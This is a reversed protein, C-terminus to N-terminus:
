LQTEGSEDIMSPTNTMKSYVVACEVALVLVCLGAAITFLPGIGIAAVISPSVWVGVGALIFMLFNVLASAAAAKEQKVGSVYAMLAPFFSSCGFGLVFSFVLPIALNTKYQFSWGFILAAIPTIWAIFCSYFLRGVTPKFKLAAHDSLRGTIVCGVLMGFGTPIFCVGTLAENLNYPPQALVIPLQVMSIFMTMFLIPLVLVHSLLKTDGLFLIPDYFPLMKPKRLDKAEIINRGEAITKKRTLVFYPHTEPILFFTSVLFIGGLILLAVFTSRWGLSQSLGGGVLPGLIPGVLLPITYLGLAMGRQHLPYIDGISSQGTPLIGAIVVGQLARFIVLVIINPSFLCVFTLGIFTILSLLLSIRRGYRDCFNGWFLSFVGIALLYVSVSASVLSESTNFDSQISPLAPLYVTDCFPLILSTAANVFLILSRKKTSYLDYISIANEVENANNNSASTDTTQSDSIPTHIISETELSPPSQPIIPSSKERDQTEIESTKIDAGVSAQASMTQQAVIPSDLEIEPPTM